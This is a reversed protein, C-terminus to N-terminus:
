REYNVEGYNEKNFEYGNCFNNKEDENIDLKRIHYTIIVDILDNLKFLKDYEKKLNNFDTDKSLEYIISKLMPCYIKKINEMFKDHEKHWLQMHYEHKSIESYIKSQYSKMEDNYKQEYKSYDLAMLIIIISIVFFLVMFVGYAM